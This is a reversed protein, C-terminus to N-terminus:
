SWPHFDDDPGVYLGGVAYKAVLKLFMQGCPTQLYYSDEDISPVAFSISVSGESASAVPGAQGEKARQAMALLHCVLANLVMERDYVGKDPDFPIVANPSNDIVTTVMKFANTLQADTFMDETFQPFVERFTAPDFKVSAGM